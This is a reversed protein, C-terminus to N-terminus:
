GVVTMSSALSQTPASEIMDTVWAVAAREVIQAVDVHLREAEGLLAEYCRDDFEIEVRHANSM